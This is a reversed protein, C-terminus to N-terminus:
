RKGRNSGTMPDDLGRRAADGRRKKVYAGELIKSVNAPNLIWDFTILWGDKNDGTLFPQAAIAEIIKEIDFGERIRAKLNKERPSGPDIGKIWPIGAKRAFDNWRKTILDISLSIKEKDEEIDGEIDIDIDRRLKGNYSQTTVKRQLKKEYEARYDRQRSYESQYKEWNVIEIVNGAVIRIKEFKVCKRKSRILLEKKIELLGAIQEDTYGVGESVCIKGEIPSDGGLLLFGIFVFREDPELEKFCTGRLIQDVYLKIWTRRM